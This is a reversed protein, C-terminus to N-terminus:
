VQLEGRWKQQRSCGLWCSKHKMLGTKLLLAAVEDQTFRLDTTRLETLQMRGRLRALPLSPDVRTAIVLHM